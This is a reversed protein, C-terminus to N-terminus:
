AQLADDGLLAVTRIGRLTRSVPELDLTLEPLLEHDAAVRQRLARASVEAREMQAEVVLALEHVDRLDARAEVVARELGDALLEARERARGRRERAAGGGAAVVVPDIGPEHAFHAEGFPCAITPDTM